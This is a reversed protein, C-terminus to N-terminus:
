RPRPEYLTSGPVHQPVLALPHAHPFSAAVSLLCSRCRAFERMAADVAIGRCRSYHLTATAPNGDRGGRGLKQAWETLTRPTRQSDIRYLAQQDTGMGVLESAFLTRVTSDALAFDDIIRSVLKQELVSHVVGVHRVSDTAGRGDNTSVFFNGIHILPSKMHYRLTQSNQRSIKKGALIDM